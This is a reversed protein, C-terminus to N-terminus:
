HIVAKLIRLEKSGMRKQPTSKQRRSIPASLIKYKGKVQKILSLLNKLM